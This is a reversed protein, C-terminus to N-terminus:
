NTDTDSEDSSTEESREKFRKNSPEGPVHEAEQRSHVYGTYCVGAPDPYLDRVASVFCPPLPRRKSGTMFINVAYFWYLSWRKHNPSFGDFESGNLNDTGVREAVQSYLDHKCVGAIPYSLLVCKRLDYHDRCTCNDSNDIVPFSAARASAKRQELQRCWLKKTEQHRIWYGHKMGTEHLMDFSWQGTRKNLCWNFMRLCKTRDVQKVVDFEFVAKQFTDTTWEESSAIEPHAFCNVSPAPWWEFGKIFMVIRNEIPEEVDHSLPIIEWDTVTISAGPLISYGNLKGSLGSNLRASFLCKSGDMLVFDYCTTTGTNTANGKFCREKKLCSMIVFTPKLQPVLSLNDNRITPKSTGGQVLFDAMFDPSIDKYHWFLDVLM